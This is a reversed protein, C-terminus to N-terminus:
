LKYPNRVVFFCTCIIVSEWDKLNKVSDDEDPPLIAPTKGKFNQFDEESLANVMEQLKKIEPKGMSRDVKNWGPSEEFFVCQVQGDYGPVM